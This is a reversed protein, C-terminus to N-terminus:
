SGFGHKMSAGGLVHMHLHFVTQGGAAQNNVVTRYGQARIGKESALQDALRYLEPLIAARDADTMDNLSAVHTKPIILAHLPAQPQIDAIAFATESEALKKAPIKGDRIKCFLCDAM